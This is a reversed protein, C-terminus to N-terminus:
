MIHYNVSSYVESASTSFATITLTDEPSLVINKYNLDIIKSGDKSLYVCETARGGSFSGVEDKQLQSFNNIYSYTPTTITANIYMKISVNKTGDASVAIEDITVPTNILSGQYITSNYLTFLLTETSAPISKFINSHEVANREFVEQRRGDHQITLCSCAVLDVGTTIVAGTRLFGVMSLGFSPDKSSPTVSTGPFKIIHVDVWDGNANMISFRVVGNYTYQIQAFQLKTLDLVPLDGTGDAKDINFSTRPIHTITTNNIYIIGFRDYTNQLGDDIWGFGYFDENIYGLGVRLASGLTSDSTEFRMSFRYNSSMGSTYRVCKGQIYAQQNLIGNMNLGLSRSPFSVVSLGGDCKLDPFQCQINNDQAFSSNGAIFSYSYKTTIEATRLDNFGGLPFNDIAIEPSKGGVKEILANLSTNMVSGYCYARLYTQNSLSTNTIILRIWKSLIVLNEFSSIGGSFNNSINVDWNTGDPSFQVTVNTDFDSSFSLSISSYQGAIIKETTYSMGANLPTTYSLQLIIDSNFSM